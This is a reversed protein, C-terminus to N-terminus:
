VSSGIQLSSLCSAHCKGVGPRGEEWAWAPLGGAAEERGKGETVFSSSSPQPSVYTYKSPFICSYQTFKFLHCTGHWVVMADGGGAQWRGAMGGAEGAEGAQESRCVEGAQRGRVVQVGHIDDYGQFRLDLSSPEGRRSFPFM